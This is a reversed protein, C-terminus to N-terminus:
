PLSADELSCMRTLVCVCVCMCVCVCVIVSVCMYVCCLCLHLSGLLTVQDSDTNLAPGDILGHLDITSTASM